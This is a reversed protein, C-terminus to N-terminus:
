ETKLAVIEEAKLGTLDQILEIPLGKSLAKKATETKTETVGEKSGEMRGKQLAFDIRGQQDKWAKERDEALMRTREDASLQKLIVVAKGIRPNNKTLMM